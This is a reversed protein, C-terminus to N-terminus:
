FYFIKLLHAHHTLRNQFHFMSSDCHVGVYNISSGSTDKLTFGNDLGYTTSTIETARLKSIVEINDYNRLIM